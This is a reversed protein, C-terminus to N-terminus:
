CKSYFNLTIDWQIFKPGLCLGLSTIIALPHYIVIIGLIWHFILTIALFLCYPPPSPLFLLHDCSDHLTYTQPQQEDMWEILLYNNLLEQTGPVMPSESTSYFLTIYCKSKRLRPGSSYVCWFASLYILQTHLTFSSPHCFLSSFLFYHHWPLGLWHGHPHGNAIVFCFSSAWLSVDSFNSLQLLHAFGLSWM